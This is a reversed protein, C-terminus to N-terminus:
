RVMDVTKKWGIFFVFPFDCNVGFLRREKSIKRETEKNSLYILFYPDTGLIFMVIDLNAVTV